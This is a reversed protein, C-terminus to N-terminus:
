LENQFKNKIQTKSKIESKNFDIPLVSQFRFFIERKKFWYM